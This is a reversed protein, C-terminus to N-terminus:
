AARRVRENAVLAAGKALAREQREFPSLKANDAKIQAEIVQRAETATFGRNSVMRRYEAHYERPLWPNYARRRNAAVLAAIRRRETEANRRIISKDANLALTSCSRCLGTKAADTIIAPCSACVRGLKRKAKM